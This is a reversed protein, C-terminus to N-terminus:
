PSLRSGFGSPSRPSRGFGEVVGFGAGGVPGEGIVLGLGEFGYLSWLPLCTLAVRGSPGRESAPSARDPGSSTIAAASVPVARTDYRLSLRERRANRRLAACDAAATELRRVELGAGFGRQGGSRGM